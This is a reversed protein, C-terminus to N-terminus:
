NYPSSLFNRKIVQTWNQQQNKYLLKHKSLGSFM